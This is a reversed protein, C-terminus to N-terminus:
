NYCKAFQNEFSTIDTSHTYLKCDFTYVCDNPNNLRSYIDNVSVLNISSSFANAYHCGGITLWLEDNITGSCLTSENLDSNNYAVLVSDKTLQVDLETGDAGIRLCPEVSEYSNIPYKFAIGMGANGFCSIKNGNLNNIVFLPVDRKCANYLLCVFCFLLINKIIKM